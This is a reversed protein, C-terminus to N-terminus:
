AKWTRRSGINRGRGALARPGVLAVIEEAPMDGVLLSGASRTPWALIGQAGEQAVLLRGGSVAGRVAPNRFFRADAVLYQVLVRDGARYALVASPEDDITTTWAAVLRLGDAQMPEVVFPVAARVAAVDRARGPLDGATARRYDDLVAVLLPVTALRDVRALQPSDSVPRAVMVVLLALLAIAFLGGLLAIWRSRSRRAAAPAPLPTAAVAVAIRERLASSAGVTPEAALRQRLSQHVGLERRCRACGVLHAELQSTTEPPLERDVYAGLLEILIQHRAERAAVEAPDHEAGRALPTWESM